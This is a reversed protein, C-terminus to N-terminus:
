LAYVFNYFPYHIFASKLLISIIYNLCTLFDFTINDYTAKLPQVHFTFSCASRLDEKRFIKASRNGFM